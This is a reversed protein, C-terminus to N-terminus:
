EPDVPRLTVLAFVSVERYTPDTRPLSSQPVKGDGIYYVSNLAYPDLASQIVLRVADSQGTSIGLSALFRHSMEHSDPSVWMGKLFTKARLSSQDEVLSDPVHPMTLRLIVVTECGPEGVAELAAIGFTGDGIYKRKEQLATEPDHSTYM